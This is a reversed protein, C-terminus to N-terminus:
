YVSLPARPPLLMLEPPAAPLAEWPYKGLVALWLRTFFRAKNAGGLALIRDRARRMPQADAPVGALRLAYWAEVTVSLEGEGGFWVPWGGDDAQTALLEAAIERRDDRSALGLAELLFLQEATISANSELEGWWFGEPNQLDRLHGAGRMAAMRAAAQLDTGTTSTM